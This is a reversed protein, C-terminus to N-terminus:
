VISPARSEIIKTDAADDNASSKTGISTLFVENVYTRKDANKAREDARSVETAAEVRASSRGSTGKIMLETLNKTLITRSMNIMELNWTPDKLGVTL